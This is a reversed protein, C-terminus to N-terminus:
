DVPPLKGDVELPISPYTVIVYLGEYIDLFVYTM